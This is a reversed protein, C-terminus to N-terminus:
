DRCNLMMQWIRGRRGENKKSEERGEERRMKGKEEEKESGRSRCLLMAGGRSDNVDGAVM